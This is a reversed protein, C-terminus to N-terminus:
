RLHSVYKQHTKCELTVDAEVNDPHHFVCPFRRSDETYPSAHTAPTGDPDPLEDPESDDQRDGSGFVQGPLHNQDQGPWFSTAHTQSSRSNRTADDSGYGPVSRHGEGNKEGSPLTPSCITSPTKANHQADQEIDFSQSGEEHLDEPSTTDKNIQPIGFAKNANAIAYEIDNTREPQPYHNVLPGCTSIKSPEEDVSEISSPCAGKPEDSSHKVRSTIAECDDQAVTDTDQSAPVATPSTEPNPILNQSAPLAGRKVPLLSTLTSKGTSKPDRNADGSPSSLRVPPDELLSPLEVPPYKRSRYIVSPQSGHVRTHLSSFRSDQTYCNSGTFPGPIPRTTYEREFESDSCEDESFTSKGSNWGQSPALHLPRTGPLDQVLERRELPCRLSTEM